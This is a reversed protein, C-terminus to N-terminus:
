QHTRGRLAPPEGWFRSVAVPTPMSNEPPVKRYTAVTCTRGSTLEPWPCWRGGPSRWCRVSATASGLPGIPTKSLRVKIPPAAMGTRNARPSCSSQHEMRLSDNHHAFLTRCLPLDLLAKVRYFLSSHSSQSVERELIVDSHGDWIEKGTQFHTEDTDLKQKGNHSIFPLCYKQSM